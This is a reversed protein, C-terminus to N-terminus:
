DGGKKMEEIIESKIIGHRNNIWWAANIKSQTLFCVIEHEDEKELIKIIDLRIKNAWQIQKDSGSLEALDLEKSKTAAIENEKQYQRKICDECNNDFARDIKWQRDKVKGVVNVRGEHGCAFEGRYWAM